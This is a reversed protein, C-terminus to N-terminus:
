PALLSVYLVLCGCEPCSLTAVGEQHLVQVLSQRRVQQPLLCESSIGRRPSSGVHKWRRQLLGRVMM